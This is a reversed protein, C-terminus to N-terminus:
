TQHWSRGLVALVERVEFPKRVLEFADTGLTAPLADANGTVLIIRAEPCRARLAALAGAADPAIPSLDILAADYPGFALAATLEPASRAVAVVAGRAELATELLQTVAVDDEVLLVRLGSLDNV